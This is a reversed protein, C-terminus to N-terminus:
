PARHNAATVANQIIRLRDADLRCGDPLPNKKQANKLDQKLKATEQASKQEMAQYTEASQRLRDLLGEQMERARQEAKLTEEAHTKELRTLKTQWRMGNIIWGACFSMVVLLVAIGAKWYQNINMAIFFGPM